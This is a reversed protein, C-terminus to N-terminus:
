LPIRASRWLNYHRPYTRLHLCSIQYHRHTKTYETFYALVIPTQGIDTCHTDDDNGTNTNGNNNGNNNENGNGNGNENPDVPPPAPIENKNTDDKTCSCLQMTVATAAVILLISFVKKFM